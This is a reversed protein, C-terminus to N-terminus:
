PRSSCSRSRSQRCRGSITSSFMPWLMTARAASTPISRATRSMTVSSHPEAARATMEARSERRGANAPVCRTVIRVSSPRRERARPVLRGRTLRRGDNEHVHQMAAPVVPVRHRAPQRRFADARQGDIQAAVALRRAPDPLRHARSNRARARRRPPAASGRTACRRAASAPRCRRRM